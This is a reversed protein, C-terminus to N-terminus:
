FESGEDSDSDDQFDRIISDLIGVSEAINKKELVDLLTEQNVPFSGFKELLYKLALRKNFISPDLRTRYICATREIHIQIPTIADALLHGYTRKESSSFRINTQGLQYILKLAREARANAIRALRPNKYSATKLDQLCENLEFAKTWM